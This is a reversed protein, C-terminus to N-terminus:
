HSRDFSGIFSEFTSNAAIIELPCSRGRCLQYNYCGRFRNEKLKNEPSMKLVGLVLGSRQNVVPGGESGPMSAFGAKFSFWTPRSQWIESFSVKQSTGFPHSFLMVRQDIQPVGKALALPDIGTVPRDLTLVRAKSRLEVPQYGQVAVCRYIAEASLRVSSLKSRTQQFVVRVKDCARQNAVCSPSTVIQRPSILFGSCARTVSDDTNFDEGPCLDFRQGLPQAHIGFSQDDKFFAEEHLVMATAASVKQVIASPAVAAVPHWQQSASAAAGVTGLTFTLVYTALGPICSAAIPIVGEVLAGVLFSRM